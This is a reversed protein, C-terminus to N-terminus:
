ILQRRILTLLQKSKNFPLPKGYGDRIYVLQQTTEDTMVVLYGPVDKLRTSKSHTNKTPFLENILPTDAPLHSIIDTLSYRSTPRQGSSFPNLKDIWRSILNTSKKDGVTKPQDIHFLGQETNKQYLIFEDQSLAHSLSAYARQRDLNIALVLEDQQQLLYAKKNNGVNQALLSEGSSAYHENVLAEALENIMWNERLAGASLEPWQIPQASVSQNLQNKSRVVNAIHIETTDPQIGNDIRLLYKNINEPDISLTLWDTEIMGQNVDSNVITLQNAKLFSVILPWVEAPTQAALIWRKNGLQQISVQPINSKSALRPPPPVTAEAGTVIINTDPIELIQGVAVSDLEPPITVPKLTRAILYDNASNHFIGRNGELPNDSYLLRCSSLFATMMLALVSLSTRM